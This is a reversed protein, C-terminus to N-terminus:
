ENNEQETAKSPRGRKAKAKGADEEQNDLITGKEDNWDPINVLTRDLYGRNGEVEVMVFNGTQVEPFVTLETPGVIKGIAAAGSAASTRIHVGYPETPTVEQVVRRLNKDPLEVCVGFNVFGM